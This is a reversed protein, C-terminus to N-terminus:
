FVVGGGVRRAGGGGVWFVSEENWSSRRPETKNCIASTRRLCLPLPSVETLHPITPPPRPPPASFQLSKKERETIRSSRRVRELSERKFAATQVTTSVAPPGAAATHTHTHTCTHSHTTRLEGPCKPTKRHLFFLM